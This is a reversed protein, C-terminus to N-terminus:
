EHPSSACQHKVITATVLLQGVHRQTHEAAHFLLGLVTTPIQKRGIGRPETLTNEPTLTLQALAATVTESFHDVLQLMLGNRIDDKGENKLYHLQEDTLPLARAYTFLRDLVGSLHHLHFGVSALGAPRKWLLQDPFGTMIEKVEKRAQLLAHAVPQLLIPIGDVPGLQWYEAENQKIM